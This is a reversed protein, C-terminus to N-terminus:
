APDDVQGFHPPLRQEPTCEVRGRLMTWCLWDNWHEQDEDDHVHLLGYSGPAVQGIQAFLELVWPQRHNRLGALWVHWDGNSDRLDAVNGLDVAVPAGALLQRVRHVTADSPNHARDQPDPRDRVTVWGHFEYVAQDQCCRLSGSAGAELVGDLATSGGRQRQLDGHGLNGTPPTPPSARALRNATSRSAAACM